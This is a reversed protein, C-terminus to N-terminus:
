IVFLLIKNRNVGADCISTPHGPVLPQLQQGWVWSALAGWFGARAVVWGRARGAM